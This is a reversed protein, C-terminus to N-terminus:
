IWCSSIDEVPSVFGYRAKVRKREKIIQKKIDPCFGNIQPCGLAPQGWVGAEGVCAYLM